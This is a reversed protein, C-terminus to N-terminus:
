EEKELKRDELKCHLGQCMGGAVWSKAMSRQAGPPPAQRAQEWRVGNGSGVMEDWGTGWGLRSMAASSSIHQEFEACLGSCPKWCGIPEALARECSRPFAPAALSLNLEQLM